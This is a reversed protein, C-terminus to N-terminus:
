QKLVANLAGTGLKKLYGIVNSLVG